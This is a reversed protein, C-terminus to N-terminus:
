FVGLQRKKVKNSHDGDLFRENYGEGEGEFAKVFEAFLTCFKEIPVKYKSSVISAYKNLVTIDSSPSSFNTSLEVQLSRLLLNSVSKSFRRLCWAM